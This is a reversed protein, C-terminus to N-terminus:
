HGRGRGRGRGPPGGMQQMMQGMMQMMMQQNPMGGAAGGRGGGAGRAGGRQPMGMMPFAGARGMGAVNERKIAVKMPRGHLQQHDKLMAKNLSSEQEFEVYATGKPQGSYKDKLITVRRVAGCPMFLMRLEDEMTRPDLNGVFISYGQGTGATAATDAPKDVKRDEEQAVYTNMAQLKHSEEMAKVARELEALEDDVDEAELTVEVKKEEAKPSSADTPPLDKSADAM